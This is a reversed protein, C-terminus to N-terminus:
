TLDGELRPLCGLIQLLPTLDGMVGNFFAWRIDHPMLAMTALDWDIAPSYWSALMHMTDDVIFTGPHEGMWPMSDRWQDYQRATPFFVVDRDWLPMLHEATLTDSGTAIWVASRAFIPLAKYACIVASSPNALVYVLKEPWAEMMRQAFLAKGEDREVTEYCHMLWDTGFMAKLPIFMEHTEVYDIM